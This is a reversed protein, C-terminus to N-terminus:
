AAISNPDLYIRVREAASLLEGQVLCADSCYVKMDNGVIGGADDFEEACYACENDVRRAM